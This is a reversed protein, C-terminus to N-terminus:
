RHYIYYDHQNAIRIFNLHLKKIFGVFREYFLYSATNFEDKVEYIIEGNTEINIVLDGLYTYSQPPVTFFLDYSRCRFEAGKTGFIWKDFTYEGPEIALYYRGDQPLEVLNYREETQINKLVFSTWNQDPNTEDLKQLVQQRIVTISGFVVSRNGLRDPKITQSNLLHIVTCASLFVVPLLFLIFPKTKMAPRSVPVSPQRNFPM